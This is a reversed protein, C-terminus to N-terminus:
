NGRVIGVVAAVTDVVVVVVAAAAVSGAVVVTAAAMWVTWDAVRDLVWCIRATGAAVAVIAVRGAAPLLLWAPALQQRAHVAAVQGSSHVIAPM